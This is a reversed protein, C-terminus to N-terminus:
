EEGFAKKWRTAPNSFRVFQPVFRPPQYKKLGLWALLDPDGKLLDRYGHIGGCDEPPCAGAGDLCAPYKVGPASRGVRELVIAHHWNDGFDYTYEALSGTAMFDMVDHEWSTLIPRDSFGDEDPMSFSRKSEDPAKVEFEHLHRDEWGMADQIAVHLDWFTYKGPVQISRWIPQPADILEIRFQLVKLRQGPM